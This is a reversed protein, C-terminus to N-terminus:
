IKWGLLNWYNLELLFAVAALAFLTFHVRGWRGWLRVRCAHFAAAVLALTVVVGVMPLVLALKLPVPNGALLASESGAVSSLAALFALNLVTLGLALWRYGRERGRLPELGTVSKQTLFRIPMLIIVSVFLLLSFGLVLQHFVMGSWFSLKDAAMMPAPGLFMRTVEGEADEEFSVHFPGDAMRFFGPEAWQVRFAGLPWDVILDGGEGVEVGVAGGMLAAVREFTTYSHRNFVYSGAYKQFEEEFGEPPAPAAFPPTPYYHDMFAEFFPGFSVSGGGSTNTSLFVGLNESHILAMDSHFWMTDGGHGIARVGHGSKEYFGLAFGTLRPHHGFEPSYMLRATEEELIRNEGLIGYQLHAIMFKAMADASASVSGAPASADIMEFDEEVFGGREFSYGKSMHSALEEPLPQKGTAYVMGLPGMIRDEIYDEWTMGSIREVIYGALSTAYNSYSSYTGPPRVRAPLHDELWEGRTLETESFLGFGRDEFGPTHTLIHRLTIPEPYTDPIPFDLYENVDTDLDLNGEEVQQMVATWTFLKSISGIRFLSTAADVPEREEVDAWGFGKSFFLEGDKVVSVTLGAIDHDQRYAAILGDLFAELEMPDSPGRTPEQTTAQIDDQVLPVAESLDPLALVLGLTALAM